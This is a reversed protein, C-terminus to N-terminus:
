TNVIVGHLVLVTTVRSARIDTNVTKSSRVSSSSVLRYGDVPKTDVPSVPGIEQLFM